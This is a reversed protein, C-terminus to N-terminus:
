GIITINRVLALITLQALVLISLLNKCLVVLLGLKLYPLLDVQNGLCRRRTNVKLSASDYQTGVSARNLARALTGLLVKHQWNALRVPNHDFLAPQLRSSVLLIFTTSSM